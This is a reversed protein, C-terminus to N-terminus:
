KADDNAGPKQHQRLSSEVLEQLNQKAQERYSERVQRVMLVACFAAAIFCFIVLMLYSGFLVTYHELAIRDGHTPRAKAVWPFAFTLILGFLLFFTTLTRLLM